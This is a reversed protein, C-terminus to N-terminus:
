RYRDNLLMMMGALRYIQSFRLKSIRLFTMPKKLRVEEKEECKEQDFLKATWKAMIKQLWVPFVKM